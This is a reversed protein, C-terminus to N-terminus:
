KCKVRAFPEFEQGSTCILHCRLIYEVGDRLGSLRCITYDDATAREVVTPGAPEISWTASSITDGTIPQKYDVKERPGQTYVNM